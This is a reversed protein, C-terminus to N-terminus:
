ARERESQQTGGAVLRGMGGPSRADLGVPLIDRDGSIARYIRVVLERQGGFEFGRGRDDTGRVAWDTEGRDLTRYLGCNHTGAVRETKEAETAM